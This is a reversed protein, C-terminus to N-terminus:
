LAAEDINTVAIDEKRFPMKISAAVRQNLDGIRARSRHKVTTETVTGFGIAGRDRPAFPVDKELRCCCCCCCCCDLCNM